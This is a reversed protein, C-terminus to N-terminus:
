GDQQQSGAERGGEDGAPFPGNPRCEDGMEM